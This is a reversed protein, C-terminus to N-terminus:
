QTALSHFFHPGQLGQCTYAQMKKEAQIQEMIFSETICAQKLGEEADKHAVENEM